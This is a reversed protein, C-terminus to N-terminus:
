RGSMKPPEKGSVKFAQQARGILEDASVDVSIYHNQGFYINCRQGGGARIYDIKEVNVSIDEVGSKVTVFVAM